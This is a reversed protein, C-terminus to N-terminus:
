RKVFKIVSIEKTETEIKLFYVGSSLTEISVLNSASNMDFVSIERGNLDNISVKSIVDKYDIHLSENAPNPYVKLQSLDLAPASATPTEVNITFDLMQGFNVDEYIEGDWDEYYAIQCPDNTMFWQYETDQFGKSIRVRTNGLTATQPVTFTFSLHTEDTGTSNHIEGVIYDEGEDNLVGNQNWDVYMIFQSIFDGHTNGKMSITYNQNQELSVITNTRNVILDITNSNSITTGNLIIETIEEVADIEVVDCYPNSITQSYGSLSLLSISLLLKKNM